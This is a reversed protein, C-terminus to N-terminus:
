ENFQSWGRHRISFFLWEKFLKNALVAGAAGVGVVIIDAELSGVKVLKGFGQNGFLSITAM